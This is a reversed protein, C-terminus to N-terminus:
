NTEKRTDLEEAFLHEVTKSISKGLKDKVRLLRRYQSESLVILRTSDKMAASELV